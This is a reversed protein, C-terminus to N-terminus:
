WEGYPRCNISEQRQKKGGNWKGRGAIMIGENTLTEFKPGSMMLLNFQKVNYVRRKGFTGRLVLFAVNLVSPVNSIILPL